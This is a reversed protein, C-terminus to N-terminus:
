TGEPVDEWTLTMYLSVLLGWNDLDDIFIYLVPGLISGQPAGSM